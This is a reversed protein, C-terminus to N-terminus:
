KKEDKKEREEQRADQIQRKLKEIQQILSGAHQAWKDAEDMKGEDAKQKATNAASDARWKLKEIEKEWREIQEMTSQHIIPVTPPPASTQVQWVGLAVAIAIACFIIPITLNLGKETRSHINM